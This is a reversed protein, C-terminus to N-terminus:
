ICSCACAKIDDVNACSSQPFSVAPGARCSVVSSCKVARSFCSLPLPVKKM